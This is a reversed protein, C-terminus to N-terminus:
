PASRSGSSRRPRAPGSTARRTRDLGRLVVRVAHALPSASSADSVVRRLAAGADRNVPEGVDEALPATGVVVRHDGGEAVVDGAVQREGNGVRGASHCQDVDVVHHAAKQRSQVGCGRAAQQLVLDRGVVPDRQALKASESWANGALPLVSRM